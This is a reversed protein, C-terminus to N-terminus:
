IRKQFRPFVAPFDHGPEQYGIDEVAGVTNSLGRKSLEEVISRHLLKTRRDMLSQAASLPKRPHAFSAIKHCDKYCSEDMDQEPCFRTSKMSKSNPEGKPSLGSDLDNSSCFQINSYNFSNSSGHSSTDDTLDDQFCEHDHTTTVTNLQHVQPLSVESPSCSSLAYFPHHSGEADSYEKDEYIFSEQRQYKPSTLNAWTSAMTSVEKEIMEAIQCPEWDVNTLEKVMETAVDIATDNVVDFQFYINNMAQGDKDYIKVQLYVSADEHNMTGTITMSTTRKAKTFCTAEEMLINDRTPSRNPTRLTTPVSARDSALFPDLLLEEASLRKSVEKLCKGVFCRAEEDKIRHLADPMKGTTVKKYIQAPNTCESYPFETTLMELLCMGFSYIDVLQDYEEDYLEPAMFEPTGIISHAHQSDHLIAALGLDGIKVQGLHGNVFINDCKLDRHIVPPNHNHLYSLGQLIQRAWNKVARIHIRKYKQAYERLTGSTFLETIFNFNRKEVDIWSIQFQIISKHKLTKLLHVESYLRQLKEPSSMADNLKVQNWAVEMGLVEDFAKYVKKVSGKGLIEKFRGYRGSPDREVYTIQDDQGSTQGRNFM